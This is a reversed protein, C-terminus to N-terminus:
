SEAMSQITKVSELLYHSFHDDNPKNIAPLVSLTGLVNM